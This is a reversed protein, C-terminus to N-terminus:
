VPQKRRGFASPKAGQVYPRKAVPAPSKRGIIKQKRQEARNPQSNGPKMAAKAEAIAKDARRDFDKAKRPSQSTAAGVGGLLPDAGFRNDGDTGRLVFLIVFQWLLVVGLSVSGALTVAPGAMMGALMVLTSVLGLMFFILVWWGSMNRDHFRKVPVAISPWIMVLGVISSVMTTIPLIMLMGTAAVAVNALTTLTALGGCPLLFRTWMQKRSVRGSPSFYFRLM